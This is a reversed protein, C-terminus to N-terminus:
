VHRRHPEVPHGAGPRRLPTAPGSPRMELASAGAQRATSVTRIEDRQAQVLGTVIISLAAVIWLVAILAVGHQLGGARPVPAASETM